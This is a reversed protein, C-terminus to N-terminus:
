SWYAMAAMMVGVALAGAAVDDLMIGAPNKLKRDIWGVPWPKAIDFIRFAVFAGVVWPWEWPVIALPMAVGIFEDYVVESPDLDDTGGACYRYAVPFSLGILAAVVALRPLLPFTSLFWCIPLATVAGFTGSGKPAYGAGACTAIDSALRGAYADALGVESLRRKRIAALHPLCWGLVPTVVAAGVGFQLYPELPVLALVGGAAASVVVPGVFPPIRSAIVAPVLGLGLLAYALRPEWPISSANDLAWFFGAVAVCWFIAPSWRQALSTM